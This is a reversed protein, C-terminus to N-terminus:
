TGAVGFTHGACVARRRCAVVGCGGGGERRMLRVPEVSARFGPGQEARSGPRNTSTCRPCGTKDPLLRSGRQVPRGSERPARDVSAAGAASFAGLVAALRDDDDTDLKIRLHDIGGLEAIRCAVEDYFSARYEDGDLPPGDFADVLEAVTKSELEHYLM